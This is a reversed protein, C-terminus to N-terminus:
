NHGTKFQSVTDKMVAAQSSLEESTAASEESIASNQQMVQTIEGVNHSIEDIADAQEESALTISDLAGMFGDLAGMVSSLGDVTSKMIIGGTRIAAATEEIMETTEHVADSTRTSLSRVEDAVVAFGKGATGARAAEVAANLALINTQFAVDEITKVIKQIGESTRSIEDMSAVLEEMQKGGTRLGEAMEHSCKNVYQVNSVNNKVKETIADIHNNLLIIGDSQKLSGDALSQAGSAVYESGQSVQDVTQKIGDLAQSILTTFEQISKQIDAFDGIFEMNSEATFDGCSYSRLLRNIEDIYNALNRTTYRLDEALEGIENQSVYDLEYHTNGMSLEHMAKKIDALPKLSTRVTNLAMVVVVIASVIMNWLLMRLTNISNDDYERYDMGTIVKWGYTGVTRVSGIEETGEHTYKILSASPTAIHSDLGTFGLQTYPQGVLSSDSCAIINNNADLIASHGSDGFHSDVVLQSVFSTSLDLLIVGTVSGNDAFVPYTVSVVLTGTEVDLYPETVYASKTTVAQYYPRTAFSFSADSYGGSSLLYGDQAVSLLAIYVVDGSYLAAVKGMEKVAIDSMSHQHMPNAKTSEALVQGITEGQALVRTVSIYEEMTQNITSSINASIELLYEEKANRFLNKTYTGIICLLLFNVIVTAITLRFLMVQSITKRREKKQIHPHNQQTEM